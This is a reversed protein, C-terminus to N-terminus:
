IKMQPRRARSGLNSMQAPTTNTGVPARMNRSNSQCAGGQRLRQPRTRPTSESPQEESVVLKTKPNRGRKSNGNCNAVKRQACAQPANVFMRIQCASTMVDERITREEELGTIINQTRGLRLRQSDM